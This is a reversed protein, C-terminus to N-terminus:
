ENNQRGSELIRNKENWQRYEYLGAMFLFLITLIVLFILATNIKAVLEIPLDAQQKGVWCTILGGSTVGALMFFLNTFWSIGSLIDLQERSVVYFRQRLITIELPIRPMRIELYSRPPQNIGNQRDTTEETKNEM